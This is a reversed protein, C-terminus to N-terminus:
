GQQIRAVTERLTYVSVRQQGSMRLTFLAQALLSGRVKFSAGNGEPFRWRNEGGRTPIPYVEITPQAGPTGTAGYWGAGAQQQTMWWRRDDRVHQYEAWEEDTMPAQGKEARRDDAWSRDLADSEAQYQDEEEQEEPSLPRPEPNHFPAWWDYPSLPNADFPNPPLGKRALALGMRWPEGNRWWLLFTGVVRRNERGKTVRIWQVYQGWLSVPFPKRSPVEGEGDPYYNDWKEMTRLRDRVLNDGDMLRALDRDSLERVPDYSLRRLDQDPLGQEGEERESM